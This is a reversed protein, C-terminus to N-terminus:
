KNNVRDPTIFHEYKKTGKISYTLNPLDAPDITKSRSFYLWTVSSLDDAVGVRLLDPIITDTPPAQQDRAYSLLSSLLILLTIMPIRVYTSLNSYYRGSMSRIPLKKLSLTFLYLLSESIKTNM